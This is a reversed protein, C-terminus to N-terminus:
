NLFRYWYFVNFIAFMCAFIFLSIVDIKYVYQAFEEADDVKSGDDEKEYLKTDDETRKTSSQRTGRGARHNNKIALLIAFELFSAVM